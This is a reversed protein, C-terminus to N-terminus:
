RATSTTRIISLYAVNTARVRIEKVIKDGMTLRHIVPIWAGDAKARDIAAQGDDTM